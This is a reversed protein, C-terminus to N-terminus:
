DKVLAIGSIHFYWSKEKGTYEPNKIAYNQLLLKISLGNGEMNFTLDKQELTTPTTTNILDKPIPIPLTIIIDPSKYYELTNTEIDIRIYPYSNIDPSIGDSKWMVSVIKTYKSDLAIPYPAGSYNSTNYSIYQNNQENDYSYSMQVKIADTVTSIIEWKSLGTYSTGTLTNYKKWENEWKLTAEVLEKKFLEKILSCESFDCIYSIWSYIDNSLEKTIDKPSSLSVINGAKLIQAQELNHILRDYQRDLPYSFVSWPWVSIIFSILALSTTIVSLSKKKSIILYISIIVLWVGFLIIFYRNMTLDYQVIRLYIAYFLMLLQPIVIIPFYKRFLRILNNEEHYPKSFIYNLYGFISFGIVMWSIIGKPWDSFNLLVKISYIYLIIFYIYIFPVGIYKILFSFFRNIEFTKTNISSKKPLHLLGYIPASFALSIVAWYAYINDEQIWSKIDFLAFISGIAIFWLAMMAWGVIVSMLLNWSVLSFYNTYEIEDEKRFFHEVYPAFFLFSVFGFLHLTLYILSEFIWDNGIDISYYIFILYVIPLVNLYKINKWLTSSEIYLSVGTAFFFTIAFSFIAKTVEPSHTDTYIFYFLLLTFICIIISPIMFRSFLNEWSNKISDKSLFALPNFM